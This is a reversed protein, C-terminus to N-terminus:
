KERHKLVAVIAKDFATKYNNMQKASCEVHAFFSNKTANQVGEETGVFSSDEDKRLDLKTGVLIVPVSPAHARLEGM